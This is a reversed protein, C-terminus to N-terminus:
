QGCRDRFLFYELLAQQENLGLQKPIINFVLVQSDTDQNPNTPLDQLLNTIYSNHWNLPDQAFTFLTAGKDMSFLDRYAQDAIKHSQSDSNRLRQQQQPTLL